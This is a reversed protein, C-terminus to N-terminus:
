FAFIAAVLCDKDVDKYKVYRAQKCIFGIKKMRLIM